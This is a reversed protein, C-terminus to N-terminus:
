WLVRNTRVPVEPINEIAKFITFVIKKLDHPSTITGGLQEDIRMRIWISSDSAENAKNLRVARMNQAANLVTLIFRM